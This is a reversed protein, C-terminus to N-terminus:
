PFKEIESITALGAFDRPQTVYQDRRHLMAMGRSALFHSSEAPKPRDSRVATM